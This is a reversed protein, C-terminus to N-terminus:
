ASVFVLSVESEVIAKAIYERQMASSEEPTTSILEKYTLGDPFHSWFNTIAEASYQSM